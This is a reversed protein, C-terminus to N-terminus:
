RTSGWCLFGIVVLLLLLLGVCGKRAEPRTFKEPTAARLEAELKEVAAKAESLGAGTAERYIKIAQIKQAGYLAQQIALQQENSLPTNM